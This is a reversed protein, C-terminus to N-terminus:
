DYVIIHQFLVIFKYIYIKLYFTCIFLKNKKLFISANSHSKTYLLDSL